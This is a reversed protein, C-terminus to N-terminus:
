SGQTPRFGEVLGDMHGGRQLLRIRIFGAKALSAQIEEFTYTKGGATGVLMNVAFIAGDKPRTRDTEMVHDRIIIRGGEVLSLFVKRYLDLNQEPSNQHIIASLLALDHGPPFEDRYFDGGLLTVRDLFGSDRLRQRAMEVVAPRDFLTAKMEPVAQLFAITYTGSAGGVDLLHRAAGPNVAAVIGPALKAAIAHMAGIFAITQNAGQSEAPKAPVERGKVRETLNSWRQWVHGMHHVMPLISGSSNEALLSSIAPPCSYKGEQKVLLEMAALADLLITLGRINAGTRSALEQASLPSSALLTFLNLEAGSLLIRSEMFNRALELIAQPTNANM